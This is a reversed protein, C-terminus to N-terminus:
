EVEQMWYEAKCRDCRTRICGGCPEFRKDVCRPCIAVMGNDQVMADPYHKLFESSRIKIPHEKSWKEVLAIQETADLTSERGVACCLDDECANFAPYRKCGDDFSKCM